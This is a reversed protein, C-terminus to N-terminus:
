YQNISLTDQGSLPLSKVRTIVKLSNNLPKSLPSISNDKQKICVFQVDRILELMDDVCDLTHIVFYADLHVFNVHYCDLLQHPHITSQHPWQPPTCVGSTARTYMPEKQSRGNCKSSFLFSNSVLRFSKIQASTWDSRRVATTLFTFSNILCAYM